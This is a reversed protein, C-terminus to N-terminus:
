NGFTMFNSSEYKRIARKFIKVSVFLWLVALGAVLGFKWLVVDKIVEVPL